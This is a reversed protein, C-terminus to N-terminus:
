ASSATAACSCLNDTSSPDMPSDYDVTTSTQASANAVPQGAQVNADCTATVSSEPDTQIIEDTLMAIPALCHPGHGTSTWELREETRGKETGHHYYNIDAMRAAAEAEEIGKAKGKFYM